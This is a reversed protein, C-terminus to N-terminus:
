GKKRKLLKKFRKPMHERDHSMRKESKEIEKESTTDTWREAAAQVRRTRYGESGYEAVKHKKRRTLVPM